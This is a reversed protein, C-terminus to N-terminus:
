SSRYQSPFYRKKTREPVIISIAQRCVKFEQNGSGGSEGDVNWKSRTDTIIRMSSTRFRKVLPTSWFPLLFSFFYILNNFPFYYRYLVVDVLGDDLTPKYIMNIGAVRKSNIVLVLSFRGRFEGRDYSIRMRMKPIALLEEAGKVLYALYGIRRKLRSDTVYSIDIYAGNGSVYCFYRDNAKVVDMRSPTGSLIIDLAKSVDKSLGLTHGIDCATGAPIYGITPRADFDMMGNVCENFTGDGGVVVVLDVKDECAKRALETAQGPYATGYTTVEDGRASFRGVVADLRSAFTQKGSMPNYIIMTKMRSNVTVMIGYFAAKEVGRFTAASNRGSPIISFPHHAHMLDIRNEEVEVPREDIRNWQDRFREPLRDKREM